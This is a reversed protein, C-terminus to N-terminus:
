NIVIIAGMVVMTADDDDGGGGDDGDDGDDGDHDDVHYDDYLLPTTVSRCGSEMQFSDPSRDGQAEHTSSSSDKSNKSNFLISADTQVLYFVLGELM